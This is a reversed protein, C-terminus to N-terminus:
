HREGNTLPLNMSQTVPLRGPAAARVAERRWRRFCAGPAACRLVRGRSGLRAVPLVHLCTHCIGLRERTAAGGAECGYATM